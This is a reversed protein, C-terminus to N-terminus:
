KLDAIEADIDKIDEANPALKRYLEFERLADKSQGSDKYLFGLRRHVSVDSANLKLAQKYYKIANPANNNLQYVRGIRMVVDGNTPFKKLTSLYLELARQKDDSEEMRDGLELAIDVRNGDLSLAKQLREIAEKKRGKQGAIRALFLQAQLNSPELEVAREFADAGEDLKDKNFYAEGLLFHYRAVKPDLEIAKKIHLKVVDPEDPHYTLALLEYARANKEDQKLVLQLVTRAKERQGRLTLVDALALNLRIDKPATEMGAEVFQQAEELAEATKAVEVVNLISDVNSPDLQENDILLRAGEKKKGLKTLAESARLRVRNIDLVWPDLKVAAFLQDVAQALQGNDLLAEGWAAVARADGISKALAGLRALKAKPKAPRLRVDALQPLSFAKDAKIAAAYAKLALPLKKQVAEVQLAQVFLISRKDVKAQLAAQTLAKLGSADGAKVAAQARVLYFTEAYTGDDLAQAAKAVEDALKYDQAALKAWALARGIAASPADIFAKELEDLAERTRLAEAAFLAKLYRARARDREGLTMLGAGLQAVLKQVADRKDPNALDLEARALKVRLTGPQAEEAKEIHSAASDVDDAALAVQALGLAADISRPAAKNVEDTRAVEEFHKAAADTEGLQLLAYGYLLHADRDGKDRALVRDLEASMRAKDNKLFAIAARAREANPHLTAGEAPPPLALLKDALERSGGLVAGQWLLRARLADDDKSQEPEGRKKRVAAREDLVALGALYQAVDKGEIAAFDPLPPVPPLEVAPKEVPPPPPTGVFMAWPPEGTVFYTAAGGGVIILSVLGAVLALQTKRRARAAARDDDDAASAQPAKPRRVVETHEDDPPPEDSGDVVTTPLDDPTSAAPAPKNRQTVENLALPEPIDDDSQEAPASVNVNRPTLTAELPEPMDDAAALPEGMALPASADDGVDMPEDIASSAAPMTPPRGIATADPDFPADDTVATGLTIGAFQTDPTPDSPPDLPDSFAADNTPGTGHGADDSPDTLPAPLDFGADSPAASSAVAGLPLDLPADATAPAGVAFDAAFDDAPAPLDSPAIVDPSEAPTSAIPTAIPGPGQAVFMPAQGVHTKDDDAFLPADDSHPLEAPLDDSFSHAPPAIPTQPSQAQVLQAPAGIATAENFSDDAVEEVIDDVIEPEDLVEPAEIISPAEVISPAAITEQAAAAPPQALGTGPLAIAEDAIEVAEEIPEDDAEEIPAASSMVASPTVGADAAANGPLPIAEAGLSGAAAPADRSAAQAAALIEPPIGTPLTKGADFSPASDPALAATTAVPTAAGPLAIMQQPATAFLSDDPAAVAPTAIAPPAAGPLAIAQQPTSAFLDDDHAAATPPALAPPPAMMQTAIAPPAAAALGPLAIAAGTDTFNSAVPAPPAAAGPLPVPLEAPPPMESHAAPARPPTPPPAAPPLVDTVNVRRTVEDHISVPARPNAVAAPTPAPTPAPASTAGPLAIAAQGDDATPPPMVPFRTGCAQCKVAGGTKPIKTEDIKYAANCQTCTVRITM